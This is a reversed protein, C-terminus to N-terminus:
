YWPDADGTGNRELIDALERWDMKKLWVKTAMRKTDETNLTGFHKAQKWHFLLHDSGIQVFLWTYGGARGKSLLFNWQEPKYHACRVITSPRKPWAALHKLEMWSHRGGICFSVDAVGINATDEHRTAEDWYRRMNNRMKKWLGAESM